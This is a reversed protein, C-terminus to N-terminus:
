LYKINCGNQKLISEVLRLEFILALENKTIETEIDIKNLQLIYNNLCNSSTDKIIERSIEDEYCIFFKKLRADCSFDYWHKLILTHVAARMLSDQIKGDIESNIGNLMYAICAATKNIEFIIKDETKLNLLEKM